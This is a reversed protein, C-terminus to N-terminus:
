KESNEMGALNLVCTYPQVVSSDDTFVRLM